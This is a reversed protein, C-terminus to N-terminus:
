LKSPNQTILRDTSKQLLVAVTPTTENALDMRDAPAKAELLKTGERLESLLDNVGFGYSMEVDLMHGAVQLALPLGELEGVLEMCPGRHLDVVEPALAKLLGLSQEETLVPLRYIANPTPALAQAVSGARTTILMACGSGGVKFPMAHEQEWVDDVILLMRKNRLLGTLQAMAEELTKARM